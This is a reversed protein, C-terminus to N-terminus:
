QSLVFSMFVKGFGRVDVFVKSSGRFDASDVLFHVRRYAFLGPFTGLGQGMAGLPLIDRTPFGESSVSFPHLLFLVVYIYIYICTSRRPACRAGCIVKLACPREGTTCFRLVMKPVYDGPM